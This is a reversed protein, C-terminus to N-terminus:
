SLWSPSLIGTLETMDSPRWIYAEQGARKLADHWKQQDESVVGKERKLEAYIVRDYRVAVLDPFGAKINQIHGFRNPKNDPAHFYLWGFRNLVAEVDRQFSAETIARLLREEDTLKKPM